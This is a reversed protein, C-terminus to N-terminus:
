SRNKLREYVVAWVKVTRIRYATKQYSGGPFAPHPHGEGRVTYTYSSTPDRYESRSYIWPCGCGPEPCTWRTKDWFRM